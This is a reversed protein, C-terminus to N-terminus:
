VNCEVDDGLEKARSRRQSQFCHCAQRETRTQATDFSRVRWIPVGM